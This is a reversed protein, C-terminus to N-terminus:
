LWGSLRPANCLLTSKICRARHYHIVDSAKEFEDVPETTPLVGQNKLKQFLEEWSEGTEQLHTKLGLIGTQGDESIGVIIVATASQVADRHRIKLQM